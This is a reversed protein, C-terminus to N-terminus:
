AKPAKKTWKKIKELIEDTSVPKGVHDNMGSELCREIDEKFVNATMAVIPINLAQKTGLARIRRTAEYGDMEPMQVDMFILDFGNPDATFLDVAEVGNRASIINMDTDELLAIVIERNIDVDDVLLITKGSFDDTDEEKKLGMDQSYKNIVRKIVPLLIPKSIFEKAGSAKAEKEITSWDASSIMIVVMPENGLGKFQKILTLGDMGPMKWDVFVINFHERKLIDLAEEASRATTLQVGLRQAYLSFGMLVDPMDDVALIRLDNRDIKPVTEVKGQKTKINFNFTTGKGIETDFWISGGMKEVINKSIALGLGTGGFKRSISSDAQSFVKFLRPKQEDSIGIGTDSVSIFLEYDDGGLRKAEARLTIRGYEPTFKIANSLLNMIVQVLRQEDSHIAYPIGPDCSFNFDISKEEIKFRMMDILRLLMEEFAFESCSLEFHNSEIKSMDLIDNIIGLLHKSSDNIKDLCYNIKDFDESNQAISSMGVIANLPTRIEHSMNSLFDTKAISASRAKEMADNIETIDNFIAMIGTIDQNEDLMPTVNIAYICERGNNIDFKDELSVTTKKSVASEVALSFKELSENSVLPKLVEAFHRGGILGFNPIDMDKLFANSAYAFRGDFDFLLLINTMNALVLEFYQRDKNLSANIISETREQIAYGNRIRTLSSEALSLKRKLAHIEKNLEDISKDRNDM